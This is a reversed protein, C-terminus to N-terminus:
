ATRRESSAQLMLGRSGTGTTFNVYNEGDFRSVFGVGAIWLNMWINEGICFTRGVQDCIPGDPGTISRLRQDPPKSEAADYRWLKGAADFWLSGDPGAVATRCRDTTGFPTVNVFNTGDFRVLGPPRILWLIGDPTVTL